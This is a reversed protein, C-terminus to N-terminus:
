FWHDIFHEAINEVRVVVRCNAKHVSRGAWREIRSSVVGDHTGYAHGACRAEATGASFLTATFGLVTALVALKGARKTTAKRMIRERESARHIGAM